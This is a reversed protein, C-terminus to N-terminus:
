IANNRPIQKVPGLSLLSDAGLAALNCVAANAAGQVSVIPLGFAGGTTKNLNGLPIYNVIGLAALKARTQENRMDVVPLGLEDATTKVNSIRHVKRQHFLLGETTAFKTPCLRCRHIRINLTKHGRQTHRNLGEKTLFREPCDKVPCLIFPRPPPPMEDKDDDASLDITTATKKKSIISVSSNLQIKQVAEETSASNTKHQLQEENSRVAKNADPNGKATPTVTIGRHALINAVDKPNKGQAQDKNKVSLTIQDSLQITSDLAPSNSSSHSGNVSAGQVSHIVPLGDSHPQMSIVQCDDQDTDELKIKKVPPVMTRARVITPPSPTQNIGRMQAYNAPRKIQSYMPSRIAVQPQGAPGVPRMQRMM